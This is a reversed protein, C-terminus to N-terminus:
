PPNYTVFISPSFIDGDDLVPPVLDQLVPGDPLYIRVPVSRVNYAGDRDSPVAQDASPPRTHVTSASSPPPGPSQPRTPATTPIVKSAVRWYDDFNDLAVVETLSRCLNIVHFLVFTSISLISYNSISSERDKVGEWMGDQEAKRLGTMRKTNGWRMFDAEKLQGMFAMKCAEASPSLLLKDTPPSALHLILRLPTAMM